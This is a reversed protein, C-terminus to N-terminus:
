DFVFDDPARVDFTGEIFDIRDPANPEINGQNEALILHIEFQGRIRGNKQDYETIQVWNDFGDRDIDYFDGGVDGDDLVTTYFGRVTDSVRDFEPISPYIEQRDTNPSIR